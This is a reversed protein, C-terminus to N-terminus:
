LRSLKAFLFAGKKHIFCFIANLANLRDVRNSMSGFFSNLLVLM